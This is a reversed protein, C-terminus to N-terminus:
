CIQYPDAEVVARLDEIDLTTPRGPRAEDEVSFNGSRFKQYFYQANRIKISNLGYVKNINEVAKTANEGKNFEYLLFHRIHEKSVSM